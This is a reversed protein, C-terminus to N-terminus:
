GVMLEASLRKRVMNLSGNNMRTPCRMSGVARASSIKRCRDGASSENDTANLRVWSKSGLLLVMVKRM